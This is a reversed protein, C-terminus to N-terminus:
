IDNVCASFQNGCGVASDTACDFCPTSAPQNLCMNDTCVAQCSGACLCSQLSDFLQQSSSCLGMPVTGMFASNAVSSCSVCGGTGTSVAASGVVGTGFGGAGGACPVDSIDNETVDYCCLEGDFEPESDVSEISSACNQDNFFNIAEDQSPCAGEAKTWFFCAQKGCGSAGLPLAFALAFVLLPAPIRPKLTM